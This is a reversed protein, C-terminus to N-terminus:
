VRNLGPGFLRAAVNGGRARNLPRAPHSARVLLVGLHQRHPRDGHRRRVPEPRTRRRFDGYLDRQRHRGHDGDHAGPVGPRRRLGFHRVRPQQLVGPHLDHQGYQHADGPDHHLHQRRFYGVDRGPRGPQKNGNNLLEIGPNGSSFIANGRIAIRTATDVRVGDNGNYAITNAAAAVTGGITNNSAMSTSVSVGNQTNGLASSGTVDTGILNGQVLNGTATTFSSTTISVGNGTNGSILNGAGTATGGITNNGSSITVGTANGQSVTGSPDTGIYNCTILDNGNTQILAGSGRFRDIVLGQVTSNGANLTLGNAGAPASSGDLEILPTCNTFGPQTTGDLLVPHTIAPLATAPSITQAGTGISFRITVDDSSANADLIAQRLSGMGSDATNLVTFVSLLTRDELAELRL